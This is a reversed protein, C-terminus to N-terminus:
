SVKKDIRVEFLQDDKLPESSLVLGYNYVSFNRVATCNDNILNVRDGCRQHFMEAMQTCRICARVTIVVCVSDRVRARM